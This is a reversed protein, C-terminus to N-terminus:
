QRAGRNKVTVGITKLAVISQYLNLNYDTWANPSGQLHVSVYRGSVRQDLFGRDYGSGLTGFDVTSHLLGRQNYGSASVELGSLLDDTEMPSLEFFIRKLMLNKVTGEINLFGSDLIIEADPPTASTKKPRLAFCRVTNETKDYIALGPTGYLPYWIENDPPLLYSGAKSEYNYVLIMNTESGPVGYTVFWFICDLIPVDLGIQISQIAGGEQYITPSIHEAFWLKNFLEENQGASIPQLQQGNFGYLGELTLFYAAISTPVISHLAGIGIKPNITLTKLTYGTEGGAKTCSHIADETVVFVNGSFIFADVFGARAMHQKYGALNDPPVITSPHWRDIATPHNWRIYGKHEAIPSTAYFVANNASAQKTLAIPITVSTNAVFSSVTTHLWVTDQKIAIVDGINMDKTSPVPITTEGAATTTTVSTTNHEYGDAGAIALLYEDHAIYKKPMPAWGNLSGDNDLMLGSTGLSTHLFHKSVVDNLEGTVEREIDQNFVVYNGYPLIPNKLMVAIQEAGTLTNWPTITAAKTDKIAPAQVTTHNDELFLVSGCDYISCGALGNNTWFYGVSNVVTVPFGVTNDAVNSITPGIADCLAQLPKLGEVTPICNQMKQFAEFPQEHASLDTHQGSTLKKLAKIQAM